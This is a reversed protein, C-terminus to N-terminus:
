GGDVMWSCAINSFHSTPSEGESYLKLDSALKPPESKSEAVLPPYRPTSLFFGVLGVYPTIEVWALLIKSSRKIM